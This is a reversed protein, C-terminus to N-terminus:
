KGRPIVYVPSADIVLSDKTHNHGKTMVEMSIAM